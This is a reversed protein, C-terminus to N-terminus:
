RSTTRLSFSAPSSAREGFLEQALLVEVSRLATSSPKYLTPNRAVLTEAKAKLDSTLSM